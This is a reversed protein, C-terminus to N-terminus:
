PLEWIKNLLTRIQTRKADTLASLMREETEALSVVMEDAPALGEESLVIKLGRRDNPDITRRIMRRKELRDLRNTM